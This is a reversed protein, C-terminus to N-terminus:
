KSFQDLRELHGNIGEEVVLNYNDRPTDNPVIYETAEALSGVNETGFWPIEIEAVQKQVEIDPKNKGHGSSGKKTQM